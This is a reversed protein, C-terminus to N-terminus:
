QKDMSFGDVYLYNRSGGKTVDIRSLHDKPNYSNPVTFDLLYKRYINSVKILVRATKIRKGNSDSIIVSVSSREAGILTSATRAWFTILIRDGATLGTLRQGRGGSFRGIRLAKKGFKVPESVTSSHKYDWNWDLTGLEFDSNLITPPKKTTLTPNAISTPTLDPTSTTNASPTATQQNIATLTPTPTTTNVPTMTVTRTPTSTATRTATRTPTATSSTAVTSTNTPLPTATRTPTRTATRTPTATSSAAVTSTNTPLPTATRTPTRTATRTPTATSSAAVTSTNTPLPTTTRTPTRTATRTPTATSSAVVLPTNTPSPTAGGCDAKVIFVDIENSRGWNSSFVVFKGDMSVVARPTSWYGDNFNQMLTFNSHHHAIRCVGGSGDIKVKFIEDYFPIATTGVSTGHASITYWNPNNLVNDFASHHADYFWNNGMNLLSWYQTPSDFRRGLIRNNVYDFGLMIGISNDGHATSYNPSGGLITQTQGTDTNVILTGATDLPASFYNGAKDIRTENIDPNTIKTLKNNSARWAFAGKTSYNADTWTFSFVDDNVCSKSLQRSHDGASFNSSLNKLLSYQNTALNYAYISFSMDHLYIIDPNNCSWSADEISLYTPTATFAARRNSITFNNPDFDYFYPTGNESFVFLRTSNSNLAPWYAYAHFNKGGGTVRMVTTGFVPDIMKAGAAPLPPPPPETLIATSNYIQSVAVNIPLQILCILLIIRYKRFLSNIDM